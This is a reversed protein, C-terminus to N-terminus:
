MVVFVIEFCRADNNGAHRALRAFYKNLPFPLFYIAHHAYMNIMSTPVRIEDIM